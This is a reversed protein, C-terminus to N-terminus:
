VKDWEKYVVKKMKKQKKQKKDKIEKRRLWKNKELDEETSSCSTHTVAAGQMRWCGRMYLHPASSHPYFNSTRKNEM